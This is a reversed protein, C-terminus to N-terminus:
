GIFNGPFLILRIVSHISLLGLFFYKLEVKEIKVIFMLLFPLGVMLLRAAGTMLFYTALFLFLFFMAEKFYPYKYTGGLIIILSLYGLFFVFDLGSKASDIGDTLNSINTFVELYLVLFVALTFLGGIVYFLKPKQSEKIRLREVINGYFYSAVLAVVPLVMINHIFVAASFLLAKLIWRNTMLGLIMLAFGFGQRIVGRFNDSLLPSVTLSLLFIAEIPTKVISSLFLAIVLIIFYHMLQVGTFETLGDLYFIFGIFFYTRTFIDWNEKGFDEISSLYNYTDKQFSLESITVALSVFLFFFLLKTLFTEIKM